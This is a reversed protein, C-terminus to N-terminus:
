LCCCGARACRRASRFFIGGVMLGDLGGEVRGVEEVVLEDGGFGCVPDRKVVGSGVVEYGADWLAGIRLKTGSDFTSLTGERCPAGGAQEGLLLDHKAEHGQDALVPVPQCGTDRELLALRKCVRLPVHQPAQLHCLRRAPDRRLQRALHQFHGFVHLRPAVPLRQPDHSRYTWETLNSLLDSRQLSSQHSCVKWCHNREPRNRQSCYRTIAQYHLGRLSVRSRSHYECLKSLLSAKWVTHDVDDM